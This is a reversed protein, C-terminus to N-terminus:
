REPGVYTWQYQVVRGGGVDFSKSGDLNFSAGSAVVSPAGLVATPAEQDAVIVVLEDAKSVNGADDVVVLRFRQRGVPLPATRSVTVEITPTDTSIEKGIVFEAM